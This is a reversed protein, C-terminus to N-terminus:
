EKKIERYFKSINLTYIDNNKRQRCSDMTIGLLVNVAKSPIDKHKEEM